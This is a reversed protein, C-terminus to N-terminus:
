EETLLPRKLYNNVSLATACFGLIITLVMELLVLSILNINKSFEFLTIGDINIQGSMVLLLCVNVITALIAYLIAEIFFPLHIFGIGGGVLRMINIEKRRIFITMQISNFIILVGGVIFIMVIWFIVQRSFDTVKKLNKAVSTIISKEQSSEGSSEQINSIYLSINSSKIYSEIEDHYEPHKTSISVSAPLPNGLDYREFSDYINPYTAKIKTLAEEKSTFSVKEVGKLLKLEDMVRQAQVQTTSEKLYLTLDVKQSLSQLSTEAIFNVALIINFIFLIIGIVLITAISLFKNRYLNSLSLAM